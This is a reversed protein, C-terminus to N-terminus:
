RVGRNLIPILRKGLFASVFCIAIDGPLALIFCYLILPWIGIPQQIYYNAVVYYYIMGVLYVVALGAFNAILLRKVTPQSSTQAIAGTIYTGLYFGIIYGFTPQLIYGIGGGQTFVPIGLLGVAIYVAVSLSGLRAGLLLGALTTFLFQLTFPVAPIPVKIFAGVAILASFLACIILSATRNKVIALSM